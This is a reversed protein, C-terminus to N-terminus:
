DDAEENVGGDEAIGRHTSHLRGMVMVRAQQM